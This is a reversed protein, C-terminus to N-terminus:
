PGLLGKETVIGTILEHPTVDFAPNYVPPSWTASSGQWFGLIEEARREEIPIERGQELEDDFTTSPAVVYFPIGHHKALVALAYTGIKNAVDLKKTIRDAGVFVKNVRGQQMLFAATNDLILHHPIGERALEWTTLRAGQGLPRTECAYVHINKGQQHAKKIVGLATGAGATALSGTNCYTLIQDGPEVLTNGWEAMRECLQVDELFLNIAQQLAAQVGARQWAQYCTDLNNMLNIATPRSERLRQYCEAITREHSQSQLWHTWFLSASIGILPAGRVRLSKIAEIMREPISMHLWRETHPLLTQDLLELGTERSFRLSLSSLEM